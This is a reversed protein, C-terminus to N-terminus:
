RRGKDYRRHQLMLQGDPWIAFDDESGAPINQDRGVGIIGSLLGDSQLTSGKKPSATKLSLTGNPRGTLDITEGAPITVNTQDGVSEYIITHPVNDLNTVRVASAPSSLLVAVVFLAQNSLTQM